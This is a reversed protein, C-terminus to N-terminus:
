VVDVHDYLRKLMKKKFFMSLKVYYNNQLLNIDNGTRDKQSNLCFNIIQKLTKSIGGFSELSIPKFVYGKSRLNEFRNEYLRIKELEGLKGASFISYEGRHIKNQHEERFIDYIITDLYLKVSKISTKDKMVINDHIIIDPLQRTDQDPPRVELQVNNVEKRLLECIKKNFADHMWKHNLGKKCQFPHVGFADVIEGCRKCRVPHDADNANNVNIIKLGYLIRIINDFEKNNMFLEDGPDDGFYNNLFAMCKDSRRSNMRIKQEVTAQNFVDHYIKSELGYILSKMRLKSNVTSLMQDEFKNEERKERKFPTQKEILNNEILLKEISNINCEIIEDEDMSMSIRNIIDLDHFIEEANTKFKDTTNDNYFEIARNINNKILKNGHYIINLILFM